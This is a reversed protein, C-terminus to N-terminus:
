PAHRKCHRLPHVQMGFLNTAGSIRLFAPATAIVITHEHFFLSHRLGPAAARVERKNTVKELAVQFTVMAEHLWLRTLHQRSTNLSNTVTPLYISEYLTTAPTRLLFCTYHWPRVLQINNIARIGKLPLRVTTSQPAVYRLAM